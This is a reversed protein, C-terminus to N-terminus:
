QLDAEPIRVFYHYDSTGEYIIGISNGDVPCTSSYGACGRPDYVISRPWTKGGDESIRLTM